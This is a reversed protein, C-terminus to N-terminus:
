LFFKKTSERFCLRGGARLSEEHVISIVGRSFLARFVFEKYRWLIVLIGIISAIVSASCKVILEVLGCVLWQPINYAHLLHNAGQKLGEDLAAM